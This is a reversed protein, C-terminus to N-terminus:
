RSPERRSSSRGPATAGTRAGRLALRLTNGLFLLLTLANLLGGVQRLTAVALLDGLLRLALSLQLLIVPLYLAPSYALGARLIAPFIIPAHAFVMGIVFGVLIAHVIADYQLGGTVSGFALALLGGIGLWSYGALLAVAIFRTLGAKRVTRRAIDYRWLWLALGLFGLGCLRAGADPAVVTTAIGGLLTGLAALYNVQQWRSFRVLRSLELRESVITVVLFGQWWPVVQPIAAGGLWRLNGGLWLAAGVVLLGHFLAVQRRLLLAAIAVLGGSGLALLLAGAWAPAGALLLLGGSASGLPVAFGWRARLAVARELSILTGLFGGTLLPGHDRAWSPAVVPWPWGIRVLGGWLAGLLAVIACALLPIAVARARATRAASEDRGAARREGAGLIGSM